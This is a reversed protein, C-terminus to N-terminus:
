MECFDPIVMYEISGVPCFSGIVGCGMSCPTLFVSKRTKIMHMAMLKM